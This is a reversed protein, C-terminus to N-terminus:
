VAYRKVMENLNHALTNLDQAAKEAQRTSALSQIMAQNINQMALAIQEVGAAQQRGGAMVQAARQASEEIVGSLQEIAAQTQGALHVGQEVVKSGEETAMVTANTAKQIDQLIVKVQGTAQRSQEALNRVEAAVVAFGKGHEGARAAEVAANLALMNSQAAISSVTSIIEDIQQTQESLALINEAIGEVREQIHAMSAITERVAQQGTQSVTITRNAAEHVEQARLVAQEGIAKVEDVTTSTQAIAASQESSGSAQQTTAALIEASATTLNTSAERVQGIMRQLNTTMENLSHGLLILPDDPQHGNPNQEVQVSLNGHGVESMYNVYRQVTDELFARQEHESDLMDKLREIMQKFARALAGVEDSSRVSVEADLNGQAVTEATKILQQIPRTIQLALFWLAVLALVALVAGGLFEQWMLAYAQKYIAQRPVNTNAAWSRGTLGISFPNFIELETDQYEHIMEGRQMRELEKGSQLDPHLATASKGILEPRGQASALRGDYTILNMRGQGDFRKDEDALAQLVTVPYDIGTIGAFKGNVKIPVVLSLMEVPKGQVVNSLPGAVCEKGTTKPCQYWEDTDFDVLTELKIQGTDGRTWYFMFRGSQDHGATGAYQVDQDDFAGPEWLTYTGIINPNNLLLAKMMASVQERTLDSPKGPAKMTELMQATSRAMGLPVELETKVKNAFAETDAVASNEANAAAATVLFIVSISILVAIAILLCMGAWLLFKAQISQLRFLKLM